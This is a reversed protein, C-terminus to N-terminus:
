TLQLSSPSSMRQEKVSVEKDTKLLQLPKQTAGLTTAPTNPSTAQAVALTDQM